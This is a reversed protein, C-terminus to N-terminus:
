AENEKNEDGEVPDRGNALARIQNIVKGLEKNFKKSAGNFEREAKAHTERLKIAQTLLDKARAKAADSREKALEAVVDGFASAELRHPRSPDFTLLEELQESPGNNRREDGM